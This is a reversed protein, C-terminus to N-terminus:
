PTAAVPNTGEAGAAPKRGISQVYAIIAVMESDPAVTVGETALARAIEAGQARADAAAGSVEAATYPVGIARMAHLKKATVKLDVKGRAFHAYPPMNSGPSVDRPDAFHKYHWLDPYKGGERALDPGTRKSGWQFPHDYQSDGLSSVEGYRATEFTFPRIMQSHCNYCGEKIYLDRGELELARYPRQGATAVPAQVIVVPVLEAVGGVLVAIAALVTFILARGEVMRHWNTKAQSRTMQYALTGLVAVVGGVLITALSMAQGFFASSGVIVTVAVALLVPRGFVIETWPAEAAAEEVPVVVSVKVPEAGWATRALNYVMLAFGALYLSGGVLRMWYMPKIALLTEVFNPYTLLGDANTQRLMLGQTVGSVWMSVVYLLIGVTGVYFHLDALKISHLKRGYLRPVLFYFMGAAMFGNWGLAGSHVHGIIWDTYHALGNVSRISLLPGEFTAMGYFTVGAAFFKIVPDTKLKDWGGRLTLLGNLMGGWSPAWLMISFIM